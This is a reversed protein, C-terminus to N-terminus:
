SAAALSRRHSASDGVCLPKPAPTGWKGHPFCQSSSCSCAFEVPPRQPPPSSALHPARPWGNCRLEPSGALAIRLERVVVLSVM